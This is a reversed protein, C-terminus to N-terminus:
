GVDDAVVRFFMLGRRTRGDAELATSATELDTWVQHAGTIALAQRHLSAKVADMVGAVEDFGAARSWCDVQLSASTGFSTKTDWPVVVIPGLRVYPFRDNSEPDTVQPVDTVVPVFGWADSLLAVLGADAALKARVARQIAQAKM